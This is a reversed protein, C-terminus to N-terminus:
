RDRDERILDASNSFHQGELMKHVREFKEMWPAGEEAATREVMLLLEAQLSRRNKGARSKLKEITEGDVGRILLDPM